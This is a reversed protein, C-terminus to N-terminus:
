LIELLEVDFILTANPPITEGSGTEGYALDSPIILTRKEGVKMDMLGEDWGPIVRGTGVPFDLPKDRNYSSDFLTGDDLYGSYHVSITNGEEPQEGDGDEQIVYQLGSEKTEVDNEDYGWPEPPTSINLLEIEMRLNEGGPIFGEIGEDGFALNPPIILTRKGGEQMGILGEDWGQIPLQGMGAQITIPGQDYSSEFQEGNELFGAFHITLYDSVEVEPGEGTQTDTIELGEDTITTTDSKGCSWFLFTASLFALLILKNMM